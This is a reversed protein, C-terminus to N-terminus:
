YGGAVIPRSGDDGDDRTMGSSRVDGLVDDVVDGFEVGASDSYVRLAELAQKLGEASGTGIGAAPLAAEVAAVPDFRGLPRVRHNLFSPFFPRPAFGTRYARGVADEIDESRGMRIAAAMAYRDWEPEIYESTYARFANRQTVDPDRVPGKLVKLCAKGVSAAKVEFEYETIPAVVTVPGPVDSVKVLYLRKEREGPKVGAPLCDEFPVGISGAYEHMSRLLHWMGVRVPDGDDDISLAATHAAIAAAATEIAQNREM